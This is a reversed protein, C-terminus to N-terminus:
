FPAGSSPPRPAPPVQPAGPASGPKQHAAAPKPLEFETGEPFVLRYLINMRRRAEAPPLGDFMGRVWLPLASDFQLLRDAQVKAPPTKVFHYHVAVRNRIQEFKRGEEARRNPDEQKRLAEEAKRALPFRGTKMAAKFLEDKEEKDPEPIRALKHARALEQIQRSQEPAPLRRVAEQQDPTLSLWNRIITAVQYPSASGFDTTEYFSERRGAEAARQEARFRSVLALKKEPPATSLENRQAEPLSQFWLNYRRLVAYANARNEEPESALKEDLARIKAQEARDLADFTKLQDALYIRREHPLSRLRGWTAGEPAPSAALALVVATVTPTIALRRPLFSM